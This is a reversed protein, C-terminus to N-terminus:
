FRMLENTRFSWEPTKLIGDQIDELSYWPTNAKAPNRLIHIQQAPMYSQALMFIVHGDEDKAVDMVIVAHGPHGGRIFVDGPRIQSIDSVEKLERSLSATGAYTFVMNLYSRFTKYSQSPAASKNWSVKSGRIQPRYGQKWESWVCPDGSTFKFSIEKELGVARLYEARLRMVADACQQLDRSGVDIDIVKFQAAQNRKKQGNYLFVEEKESVPLYRLWETFSRNKSQVRKYGEPVGVNSVVANSPNWRSSWPYYRAIRASDEYQLHQINPTILTNNEQGATCGTTLILLLIIISIQRNARCLKREGYPKLFIGAM